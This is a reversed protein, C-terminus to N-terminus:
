RAYGLCAGANPRGRCERMLRKDRQTASEESSSKVHKPCHLGGRPGWWCGAPAPGKDAGKASKAAQVPLIAFVSLMLVVIFKGM